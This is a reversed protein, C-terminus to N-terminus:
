CFVGHIKGKTEKLITLVHKPWDEFVKESRRKSGSPMDGFVTREEGDGTIM